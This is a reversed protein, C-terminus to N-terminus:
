KKKDELDGHKLRIASNKLVAIIACYRVLAFHKKVETYIKYLKSLDLLLDGM